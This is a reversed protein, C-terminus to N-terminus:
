INKRQREIVAKKLVEDEFLRFAQTLDGLKIAAKLKTFLNSGTKITKSINKEHKEADHVRNYNNLIGEEAFKTDESSM